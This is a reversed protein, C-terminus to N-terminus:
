IKSSNKSIIKSSIEPYQNDDQKNFINIIRSTTIVGEEVVKISAKSQISISSNLNKEKELPYLYFYKEKARLIHITKSNNTLNNKAQKKNKDYDFIGFEFPKLQHTGVGDKALSKVVWSQSRTSQAFAM